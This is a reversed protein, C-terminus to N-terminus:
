AKITTNKQTFFQLNSVRNDLFENELLVTAQIIRTIGHEKKGKVERPEQLNTSYKNLVEM